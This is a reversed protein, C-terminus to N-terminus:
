VIIDKTKRRFYFGYFILGVSAILTIVGAIVMATGTEKENIFLAWIGFGAFFIAAIAIFILHFGKISMTQFTQTKTTTATFTPPRSRQTIFAM